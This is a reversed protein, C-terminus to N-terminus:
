REGRRLRRPLIHGPLLRRRLLVLAGLTGAVAAAFVWAPPGAGQDGDDARDLRLGSDGPSLAPGDPAPRPPPAESQAPRQPERKPKPKTQRPAPTAPAVAPQEPASAKPAPKSRPVAAIPLPERELAMLAQATVWVPTQNSTSSYAV